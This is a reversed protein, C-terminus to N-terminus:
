EADAFRFTQRVGPHHVDSWEAEFTDDDIKYIRFLPLPTCYSHLPCAQPISLITHPPRQRLTRTLKLEDDSFTKM